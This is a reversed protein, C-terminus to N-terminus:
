DRTGGYPHVLSMRLSAGAFVDNGTLVDAGAFAGVAVYPHVYYFVSAAARLSAWTASLHDAGSVGDVAASVSAAGFRVEGMAVWRGFGALVGLHTYMYTSFPDGIVATRHTALATSWGGGGLEFGAGWRVPGVRLIGYRLNVSGVSVRGGDGTLHDTSVETCSRGASHCLSVERGGFDLSHFVPGLDFEPALLQNIISASNWSDGFRGCRRRGVARSTSTESCRAQATVPVMLAVCAAIAWGRIM